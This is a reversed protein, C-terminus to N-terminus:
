VRRVEPRRTASVCREGFLGCQMRQSSSPIAAVAQVEILQGDVPIGRILASRPLVTTRFHEAYCM